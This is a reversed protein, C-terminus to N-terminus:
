YMCVFILRPDQTQNRGERRGDAPGQVVNRGFRDVSHTHESRRTRCKSAPLEFSQLPHHNSYSIPHSRIPDSRIPHSPTFSLPLYPFPSLLLISSLRSSSLPPSLSPIPHSTLAPILLPAFHPPLLLPSSILSPTSSLLSQFIYIAINLSCTYVSNAIKTSSCQM